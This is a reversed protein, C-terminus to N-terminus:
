KGAKLHEMIDLTLEPFERMVGGLFDAGLDRKGKKILFWNARSMGLRKAFESETLKREEQKAKIKEILTVNSSM